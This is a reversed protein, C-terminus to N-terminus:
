TIWSLLRGFMSGSFPNARTQYILTGPGTYRNVLGEGSFYSDVTGSTAKVLQFEITDSFAVVFRNDVVFSEGEQLERYIVSGYTSCFIDGEGLTHMVFLGKKAMMGKMGGYKFDILVNPDNALYSGQTLFYRRGESISLHVIDGHLRPALTLEQGDRKARFISAFFSEGSMLNRLGGSIGKGSQGGVKAAIEIGTSMSVMSEPQAVIKDDADLTLHLTAFMPRHGIEFKM